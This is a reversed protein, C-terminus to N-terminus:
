LTDSGALMDRQRDFMMQMEVTLLAHWGKRGRNQNADERTDGHNVLNVSVVFDLGFNKEAHALARLLEWKVPFLHKGLDLSGTTLGIDFGQMVMAGSQHYHLNVEWTDDAPEISLEPLDGHIPRSQVPQESGVWKVRNRLGVLSTLAARSELVEWLRNYARSFPDM